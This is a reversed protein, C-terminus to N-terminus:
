KCYETKDVEYLSLTEYMDSVQIVHVVQLILLFLIVVWLIIKELDKM